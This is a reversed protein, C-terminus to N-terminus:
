RVKILLTAIIGAVGFPIMWYGATAWSTAEQIRPFLSGAVFMGINQGFIAVSMGIGIYQPKKAVEPVSALLVAAIPGGVIGFILTYLPIMSGEVKFPFLFSLTVLIFPILIMIKRKGLRDSIYGGGPATFISAGFVFATVFSAHMLPGKDYTPQFNRVQMLFSPYFNTIAMVVLNYCGFAIAILWFNSNAMGKLLSPAKEETGPPPAPAPEMEDERPMRFMIAFIVFSLASFGACIWWVLQWGHNAALSPAIFLMIINGFGVSTAWLGTPLSRNHLPFWVSIAFPATVMILGMGIGEIFRSAYLLNFSEGAMAGIAPGIAVAAVSILATIKIGLKRLIFGAPIALIFGMVSFISMLDGTEVFTVNFATNLTVMLPPVKFLNLTASLTVMYLAFLVGWAYAPTKVPKQMTDSQQNM